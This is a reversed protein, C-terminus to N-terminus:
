PRRIGFPAPAALPFRAICVAPRYEVVQVESITYDGLLAQGHLIRLTELGDALPADQSITCHPVWAGPRYHADCGLGAATLAGHFAAHAALLEPTVVPALFVVNHAGPFMGLSAFRVHLRAAYRAFAEVVATLRPVDVPVTEFVALSIHPFTGTQVLPSGTAAFALRVRQAEPEDLFLEVAYGM